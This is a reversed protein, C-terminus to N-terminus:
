RGCNGGPCGGGFSFNSSFNYQQSVPAPAVRYTPAAVTRATYPRAAYTPAVYRPAVAPAYTRVQRTMYVPASAVYTPVQTYVIRPATTIVTGMPVVTVPVFRPAGATLSLALILSAFM